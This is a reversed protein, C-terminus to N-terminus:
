KDTKIIVTETLINKVVVGKWIEITLANKTMQRICILDWVRLYMLSDFRFLIFICLHPWMQLHVPSVEPRYVPIM